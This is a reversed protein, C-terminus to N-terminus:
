IWWGLTEYYTTDKMQEDTLFHRNDYNYNELNGKEHNAICSGVNANPSFYYCNTVGEEGTTITNFNINTYSTAMTTSPTATLGCLTYVGSGLNETNLDIHAACDIVTPVYLSIKYSNSTTTTVLYNNTGIFTGFTTNYTQSTSGQINVQAVATCGITSAYIYVNHNTNGRYGKGPIFLSFDTLGNAIVNVKGSVFVNEAIYEVYMTSGNGSGSYAFRTPAFLVGGGRAVINVNVLSLNKVTIINSNAKSNISSSSYVEFLGSDITDTNDNYIQTLNLIKHGNGDFNFKFRDSSSYGNIRIKPFYTGEYESLDLDNVLKYYRDSSITIGNIARLDAVDEILYPSEITGNGGGFNGSAM